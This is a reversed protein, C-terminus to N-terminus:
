QMNAKAKQRKKLRVKIVIFLVLLALVVADAIILYKMINYNVLKGEGNESAKYIKDYKGDGDEDVKLVSYDSVAAVTSIETKKTIEIDSFDRTDTYNGEEDMFGISYDMKGKGNGEIEIEYDVGEKLRLIKIRNDNKGHSEGDSDEYDEGDSNEESSDEFSLSGFGTRTNLGSEKSSLTEGDYKVTVDVPCAIRVYIYKKNNLQEAIDDFFYVLNDADDVNFYYSSDTAIGRMLDQAEQSSGDGLASFFGLTYIIIGENKIKDAFDILEQGEKGANPMGDSMLLIIKKKAKSNKLMEYAKRLGDETNTGGSAYLENITNNLYKKSNSLESTKEAESEYTVIGVGADKQLVTDVFKTAARKTEDIPLQGNEGQDAMSGSVDLTLVVDREESTYYSADADAKVGELEDIKAQVCKAYAVAGNYNPHMSYASPMVVNENIDQDEAGFMVPNIYNDDSYAGHGEFEDAVRVFHVNELGTELIRCNIADNFQMVANNIVNSDNEDFLFGSGKPDLLCPYGTVLIQAKGDTKESISKYTEKLKDGIGNKKYFDTWIDNIMTSLGNPDIFNTAAKTVIDTFKADNGGISLTVYDVSDGLKDLATIQPELDYHKKGGRTCDKGQSSNLINATTAGSAAVFYWHFEDDTPKKINNLDSVDEKYDSLTDYDMDPLQLMGSWSHESRHASWEKNLSEFGYFDEIGEGSAYSDGMSVVIRSSHIEEEDDASVSFPFSLMVIIICMLLALIRSVNLKTDNRNM